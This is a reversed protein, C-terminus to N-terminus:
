NGYQKIELQAKVEKIIVKIDEVKAQISKVEKYEDYLKIGKRRMILRVLKKKKEEPLAEVAKYTDGTWIEKILVVDDWKYGDGSATEWEFTADEWKYEDRSYSHGDTTVRTVM